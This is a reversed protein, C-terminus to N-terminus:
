WYVTDSRVVSAKMAQKLLDIEAGIKHAFRWM